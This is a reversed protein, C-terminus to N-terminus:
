HIGSAGHKDLRANDLLMDALISKSQGLTTEWIQSTTSEGALRGIPLLHERINEKICKVAVEVKLIAHGADPALIYTDSRVRPVKTESTIGVHSCVFGSFRTETLWIM